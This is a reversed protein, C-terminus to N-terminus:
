VSYHKSHRKSLDDYTWTPPMQPAPVRVHAQRREGVCLRQRQVSRGWEASTKKAHVACASLVSSSSTM